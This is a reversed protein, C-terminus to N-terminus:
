RTQRKGQTEEKVLKEKYGLLVRPALQALHVKFVSWVKQVKRVRRVRTAQTYVM